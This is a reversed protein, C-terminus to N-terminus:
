RLLDRLEELTHVPTRAHLMAHCNPCVPRLDRIPDLMYKEGVQPLPVIHLVHIFGRGLEGYINEFDLGCVLCQLGYHLICARRAQKSREFRNILVNMAAGEFFVAKSDIEEAPGSLRTLGSWLLEVRDAIHPPISMGGAAVDWRVESFPPERLRSRLLIQETSPDLLVDFRIRTYNATDDARAPNWHLDQYSPEIAAGSAFVGRPEVGQLM